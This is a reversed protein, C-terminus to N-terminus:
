SLLAPIDLLPARVWRSRHNLEFGLEYYARELLHADLLLQTDALESPLLSTERIEDVYTGLFLAATRRQWHRLWPLIRNPGLRRGVGKQLAAHAAYHFSRVMTAVDQLPSRKLRREYLPRGPEGEFDILVVDDGVHLVQGLHLNGHCRIRQAAVPHDMIQRFVRVAEDQRAVLAQAESRLEPCVEEFRRRLASTVSVTLTRMRQYTSRRSLPSFSEPNFAPDSTNSALARHLHATRKAILPVVALYSGILDDLDTPVDNLTALRPMISGNDPPKRRSRIARQFFEEAAIVARPWAEGDNEIYQQLIGVGLCQSTRLGRLRYHLSGRIIPAHAFRISELYSGVEIEPNPGDDLQRFLKLVVHNGVDILASAGRRSRGIRRGRDGRAMQSGSYETAELSGITGDIAIQRRAIDRLAAALRSDESADYLVRDFIHTRTRSRLVAIVGAPGAVDDAPRCGLPLLYRQPEGTTFTVRVVLLAYVSRGSQIRLTDDIRASLVARAGSTWATWEELYGPLAAELEARGNEDLIEQWNRHILLQPLAERTKRVRPAQLEFWLCAHPALSLTYTDSAIPPFSTRGFLELPVHRDFRGLSLQVHQAFRSLNAVVLMQQKRWHRVYALVATNPTDVIEMQGRGFAQYRRRLAILRKMWSLLSYASAAQQEVHVAQYHYQDDVILPLFLRQSSARSFGANRDASWQMPTRVGNRDGLYINDGMGIEDGYYLIPTGPLSFLLMNLLEMRRRDNGVLPALRRRIGLNLRAQPDTAYVYYMYQREEETVMELTLEDHNRLFLAWQCSRPPDPTQALIDVIPLRDEQRMAMFLRPMLPFHFVMHSEDGDGFYAAADEPWQNAEALLMRHTFREDLHQRLRKLISHTPRLNESHTGEREVLYPVADLRM